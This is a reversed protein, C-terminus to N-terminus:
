QDHYVRPVRGSILCLPEYDITGGSRGVRRAPGPTDGFLVVVDGVAAGLDTVDLMCQDMCINGVVRAERPGEATVVSVAAGRFARIFGDAYGVPLTAITRPKDASFRGGYSVAEGPTLMHLHAIRTCFRM